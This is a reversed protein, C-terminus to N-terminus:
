RHLPRASGVVTGDGEAPRLRLLCSPPPTATSEWTGDRVRASYADIFQTHTLVVVDYETASIPNAANREEPQEFHFSGPYNFKGKLPGLELLYRTTPTANYQVFLRLSKAASSRSLEGLQTAITEYYPHESRLADRLQFSWGVTAILGVVIIRAKGYRSAAARWFCTGVTLVIMALCCASLTQYGISWRTPWSWPLKGALSALLLFLVSFATFLFTKWVAARLRVLSLPGLWAFLPAGVLYVTIPLAGTELFNGRIMEWQAAADRGYLVLPRFVPAVQGGGTILYGFQYQAQLLYSAAVAVGLPIAFRLARRFATQAPRLPFLAVLCAAFGSLFASYHSTILLAASCSLLDMKWESLPDLFWCPVFFLLVVACVEMSYPRAETAYHLLVPFSLPTSAALVSLIPSIGIRRAALFIIV